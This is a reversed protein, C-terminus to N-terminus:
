YLNFHIYNIRVGFILKKYCWYDWIKLAINVISEGFSDIIRLSKFLKFWNFAYVGVKPITFCTSIYRSKGGGRKTVSRQYVNGGLNRGSHFIQLFVVVHVHIHGSPLFVGWGVREEWRRARANLVFQTIELHSRVRAWSVKMTILRLAFIHPM